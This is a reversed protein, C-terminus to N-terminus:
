RYIPAVQRPGRFRVFKGCEEEIAPLASQDPRLRFLTILWEIGENVEGEFNKEFLLIARQGAFQGFSHKCTSISRDVFVSSGIARICIAIWGLSNHISLNSFAGGNDGTSGGADACDIGVAQGMAAIVQEQDSAVPFAESVARGIKGRLGTARDLDKRRIEGEPRVQKAELFTEASIM